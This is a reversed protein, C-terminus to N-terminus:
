RGHSNKVRQRPRRKGNGTARFRLLRIVRREAENALRVAGERTWGALIFYLSDILCSQAIRSSSVGANIRQERFATLLCFESAAALTSQPYNTLAVTRAGRQCATQIAEVISATEGTHSIGVVVDRMGVNATAFVLDYPDAVALATYGLTTLRQAATESVRGSEGLGLFIVHSARHMRRAVAILTKHNLVKETEVLSQRNCEFVRQIIAEPPLGQAFDDLTMPEAQALAVALDLRFEKYGGYGLGRCFRTVSALSTGCKRSMDEISMNRAIAPSELVFRCIKATAKSSDRVKARIRALCAGQNELETM